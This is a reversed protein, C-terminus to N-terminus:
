PPTFSLSMLRCWENVLAQLVASVYGEDENDYKVPPWWDTIGGMGHPKVHQAHSVAADIDGDKLAALCKQLNLEPKADHDCIFKVLAETASIQERIWTSKAM